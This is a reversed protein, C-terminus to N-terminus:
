LLAFPSLTVHVRLPKFCAFTLFPQVQTRALQLHTVTPLGALHGLERDDLAPCWGVSLRRLKRLGAGWFGFPHPAHSCAKGSAICIATSWSSPM